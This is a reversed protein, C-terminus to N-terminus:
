MYSLVDQALYQKGYYNQRSKINLLEKEFDLMPLTKVNLTPYFAM